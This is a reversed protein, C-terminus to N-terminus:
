LSQNEINSQLSMRLIVSLDNQSVAYNQRHSYLAISTAAKIDDFHPHDLSHIQTSKCLNGLV